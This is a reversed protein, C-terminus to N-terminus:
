RSVGFANQVYSLRFRSQKTAPSLRLNGADATLQELSPVGPKTQVHWVPTRLDTLPACTTTPTAGPGTAGPFEVAVRQPAAEADPAVSNPMTAKRPSRTSPDIPALAPVAPHSCLAIAGLAIALAAM